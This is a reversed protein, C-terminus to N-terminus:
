DNLNAGCQICYHVNLAIKAGCSPCFKVLKDPKKQKVRQQAPPQPQIPSQARGVPIRKWRTLKLIILVLVIIANPVVIFVIITGIIILIAYEEFFDEFDFYESDEYTWILQPVDERDYAGEKSSIYFYGTDTTNICVSVGEQDDDLLDEVLDSIDLKYIQNYIILIRSILTSTRPRNEWTLSLEHKSLDGPVFFMNIFMNNSIGYFDFSLEVEEWDYPEDDFDFYFYSISTYSFNGVSLYTSGGYNTTPNDSRVLCDM